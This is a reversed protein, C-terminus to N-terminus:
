SNVLTPQHPDLGAAVLQQDWDDLRLDAPVLTLAPPTAGLQKFRKEREKLMDRLDVGFWRQAQDALLVPKPDLGIALLLVQTVEGKQARVFREVHRSRAEVLTPLQPAVLAMRQAIARGQDGAIKKSVSDGRLGAIMLASTKTNQVQFINARMGAVRPYDAYLGMCHESEAVLLEDLYFCVRATLETRGRERLEKRTTAAQEASIAVESRLTGTGPAFHQVSGRKLWYQVPLAECRDHVGTVYIGPLAGFMGVGLTYDALLYFVAAQHTGNQNMASTLLPVSLVTRQPGVEEVVCDIFDLLPVLERLRRTLLAPSRNREHLALDFEDPELLLPKVATRWSSSDILTELTM